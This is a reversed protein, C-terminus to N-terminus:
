KNICHVFTFLDTACLMDTIVFLVFLMLIAGLVGSGAPQEALKENLEALEAATLSAVREKAKEPDVGLEQLQQQLEETELASLLQQRDYQQQELQVAETTSVLAANAALSFTGAFLFLGILASVFLSSRQLPHM